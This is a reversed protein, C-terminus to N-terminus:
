ELKGKPSLNMQMVIRKQTIREAKISRGPQNLVLKRTPPPEDGGGDKEEVMPMETEARMESKNGLAVVKCQFQELGKVKCFTDPVLSDTRPSVIKKM